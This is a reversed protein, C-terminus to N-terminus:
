VVGLNIVKILVNTKVIFTELSGTFVNKPISFFIMNELNKWAKYFINSLFCKFIEKKRCSYVLNNLTYM